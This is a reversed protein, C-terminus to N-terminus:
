RFVDEYLICSCPYASAALGFIPDNPAKVVLIEPPSQQYRLSLLQGVAAFLGHIELRWTEEQWQISVCKRM